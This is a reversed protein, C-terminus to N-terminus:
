TGRWAIIEELQCNFKSLMRVFKPLPLGVVNFYCGEIREVLLAGKCQIGYAGAKDFPEGTKLYASIARDTLTYFKVRTAEYDTLINAKDKIAIGTYVTHYRGSLLTLMNRAEAETSPKGLIKGDIHVITDFATYIADSDPEIRSLKAKAQTIVYKQPNDASRPPKEEIPNFILEYPLRVAKLM